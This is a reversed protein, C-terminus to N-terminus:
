KHIEVIHKKDAVVEVVSQKNQDLLDNNLFSAFCKLECNLVLKVKLWTM